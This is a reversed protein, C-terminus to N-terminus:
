DTPESNTGNNQIFNRAVELDQEVEAAYDAGIREHWEFIKTFAQVLDTAFGRAHDIGDPGDWLNWEYYFRGDSTLRDIIEIKM